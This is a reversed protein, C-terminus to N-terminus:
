SRVLHRHPYYCYTPTLTTTEYLMLTRREGSEAVARAIDLSIQAFEDAFEEYNIQMGSGGAAAAAAEAEDEASEEDDLEALAMQLSERYEKAAEVEAQLERRLRGNVRHTM